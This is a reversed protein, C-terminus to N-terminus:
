NRKSHLKLNEGRVMKGSKSDVIPPYYELYLSTLGNKLEKGKLKVRVM